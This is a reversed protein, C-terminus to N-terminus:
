RPEEQKNPFSQKGTSAGVAERPVIIRAVLAIQPDGSKQFLHYFHILAAGLVSEQWFIRQVEVHDHDGPQATFAELYLVKLDEVAHKFWKLSELPLRGDDLLQGIAAINQEPSADSIGVLSRGRRRRSLDYWPIVTALEVSLRATWMSQSSQSAQTKVFSVPCAMAEEVSPSPADDPFDALVPGTPAALLDLAAGIVQHQFVADGPKGLPRGLPFSVWLTRPPQMSEANERVLSIGTTM